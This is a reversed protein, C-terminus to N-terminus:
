HPFVTGVKTKNKYNGSSRRHLKYLKLLETRNNSALISPTDKVEKENNQAELLEQQRIEALTLARPRGSLKGCEAKSLGM